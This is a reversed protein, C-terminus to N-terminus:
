NSSVKIAQETFAILHINELKKVRSLAVYAMGVCFVKNSLDMMACDLLLGQCKHVTVAFALILPFQKCHVYIKKLVMIKSKVRKIDCPAQIGDFQVTINISVVTGIASNVLGSRTDIKRRLMVRAGVAIQLVAELGATLNCDTNLKKM